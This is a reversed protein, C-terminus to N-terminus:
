LIIIERNIPKMLEQLSQTNAKDRMEKIKNYHELSLIIGSPAQKAIIKSKQIKCSITIYNKM